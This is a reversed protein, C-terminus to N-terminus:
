PHVASALVVLLSPPLTVSAAGVEIFARHGVASQRLHQGFVSARDLHLMRQARERDGHGALVLEIRELVLAKVQGSIPCGTPLFAPHGQNHRFGRMMVSAIEGITGHM